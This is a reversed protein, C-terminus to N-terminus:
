DHRGYSRTKKHCDLCLIECNSVTDTGGSAVATIHHAEWAGREGESRNKWVLEKNCRLGGHKCNTRRCECRGGARDWAEQIVEKSFGM